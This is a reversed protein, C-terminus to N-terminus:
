FYRSVVKELQQVTELSVFNKRLDVHKLDQEYKGRKQPLLGDQQYDIKDKMKLTHTSPKSNKWNM